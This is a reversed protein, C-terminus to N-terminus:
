SYIPHQTKGNTKIETTGYDGNDGQWEVYAKRYQSRLRMVFFPVLSKELRCKKIIKKGGWEHSVTFTYNSEIM